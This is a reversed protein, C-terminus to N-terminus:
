LGPCQLGPLCAQSSVQTLSLYALGSSVATGFHQRKLAFRKEKVLYDGCWGFSSVSIILGTEVAGMVMLSQPIFGSPFYPMKVRSGTFGRQEGAGAGDM